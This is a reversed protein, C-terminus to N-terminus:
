ALWTLIQISSFRNALRKESVCGISFFCAIACRLTGLDMRYMIGRLFRRRNHWQVRVWVFNVHFECVQQMFHQHCGVMRLILM